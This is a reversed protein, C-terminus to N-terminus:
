MGLIDLVQNKIIGAVLQGSTEGLIRPELTEIFELLKEIRAKPITAEAPPSGTSKPETVRPIEDSIIVDAPRRSDLSALMARRIDDPSLNELPSTGPTSIGNTLGRPMSPTVQMGLRNIADQRYQQLRPDAEPRTPRRGQLYEVARSIANQSQVIGARDPEVIDLGMTLTLENRELGYADKIHFLASRELQDSIQRALITRVSQLYSDIEARSPRNASLRALRHSAELRVTASM